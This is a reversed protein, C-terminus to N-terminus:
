GKKTVLATLDGAMQLTRSLQPWLATYLEVHNKELMDELTARLGQLLTRVHERASQLLPAEVAQRIFQPPINLPSPPREHRAIDASLAATLAAIDRSSQRQEEQLANLEVLM